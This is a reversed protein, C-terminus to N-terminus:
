ILNLIGTLDIKYKKWDFDIERIEQYLNIASLFLATMMDQIEKINSNVVHKYSLQLAVELTGTDSHFEVKNEHLKNEPQVVIIVFYIKKISNGYDSLNVKSNLLSEMPNTDIKDQVEHSVISTLEFDKRKM